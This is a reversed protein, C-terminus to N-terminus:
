RLVHEGLVESPAVDVAVLVPTAAVLQGRVVSRSGFGGTTVRAARDRVQCNGLAPVIFVRPHGEVEGDDAKDAAEAKRPRDM